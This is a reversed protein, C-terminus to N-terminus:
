LEGEEALINLYNKLYLCNWQIWLNIFRFMEDNLWTHCKIEVDKHGTDSNNGSKHDVTKDTINPQIGFLGCILLKLFEFNEASLISKM